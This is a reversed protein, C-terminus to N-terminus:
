EPETHVTVDAGKINDSICVEVDTAIRHSEVLPTDAKIRVHITIAITSGYDHVHVHHVNKVGECSLALIEIKNIFAPSPAKGILYSASERIILVGTYAILLSVAMGLIGDLFYLRFRFAVFGILVLITSIADTRHHWADAKLTSSDIKKGLYMAIHFLSEKALIAIILLIIITLNTKVSTPNLLRNIGNVFFEFGVVLLMCAIIISVIREARGHGFPHEKDPPKSSVRFGFIVILSTVVDSLSHVADAILAISNLLTGFTFKIFCLILNVFISLLGEFYGYNKKKDDTDLHFFSIFKTIINSGMM